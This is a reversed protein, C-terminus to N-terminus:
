GGEWIPSYYELYSNQWRGYSRPFNNGTADSGLYWRLGTGTSVDTPLEVAVYYWSSADLAPSTGAGTSDKFPLSFHGYVTDAATEASPLFSKVALGVLTLEGNEMFSDLPHGNSGDVWKFLYVDTETISSILTGHGTDLPSNSTMTWKVTEAYNGPKNVYYMNGWIYNLDSANTVSSSQYLTALPYNNVFDYKGKSYINTTTYFSTSMTNDFPFQDVSDPSIIQYDIKVMGNGTIGTLDYPPVFLAWISDAAPNTNDFAPTLSITATHITSPSGGTPTFTVNTGLKVNTALHTGFNGIFAGDIAQMHVPNGSSVLQSAPTAYNQGMAYGQPIFGLDNQYGLGWPTITMTVTGTGAGYANSIDLGDSYSIMYTPITVSAGSAGPGMNIPGQGVQNNCIVVAIAGAQQANLAKAGFECTGRWIFAIKGAMSGVAFNTCGNTDGAPGMVVTKNVLPLSTYTVGWGTSVSTFRKDGAISTPATVEFRTGVYDAYWNTITSAGVIGFAKPHVVQANANNAAFLVAIILLKKFLDFQKM